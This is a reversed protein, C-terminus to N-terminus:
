SARRRARRVARGRRAPDRPVDRVPVGGDRRPAGPLHRAGRGGRLAVGPLQRVGREERVATPCCCRTRRRRPRCAIAATSATCGPRWRRASPWIPTRPATSRSSRWTRAAPPRGADRRRRVPAVGRPEGHGLVAHRGGLARPQLRLYSACTPAAVAVLKPLERLIGAMFAEGRQQMGAPGDGGSMLPQPGRGVPQPAPADRQRHRRSGRRSRRAGDTGSPSPACRRACWSRQTPPRSRSARRSRCRSSATRTSPISSSCASARRRITPHPRARVDHNAVLAIDSYGPGEHAPEFGGDERSGASRSSSSTRPRCPCGQSRWDGRGHAARVEASVGRVARRGALVPRRAGVGLRADRGASPRRRTPGCGCIAALATSTAPRCRSSITRCRSTSSRRCGSARRPPTPSGPSRCANSASSRRRIRRVRPRRSSAATGKGSAVLSRPSRGRRDDGGDKGDDQVFDRM